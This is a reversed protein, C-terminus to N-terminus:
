YKKIIFRQKLANIISLFLIKFNKGNTKSLNEKIEFIIEREKSTIKSFDGAIIMPILTNIYTKKKQVFDNLWLM